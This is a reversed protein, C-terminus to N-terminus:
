KSFTLFKCLDSRVFTTVGGFPIGRQIGSGIAKDMASKGLSSYFPSFNNIQCMNEATLWCEQTMIVSPPDQKTSLHQLVPLGQNFGHLNFSVMTFSDVLSNSHAESTNDNANPRPSVYHMSRAM